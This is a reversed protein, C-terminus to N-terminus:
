DSCSTEFFFDERKSIPVNKKSSAWGTVFPGQVYCVYCEQSEGGGGTQELFLDVLPFGGVSPDICSLIRESGELRRGEICPRVRSFFYGTRQVFSHATEGPGVSALRALGAECVRVLQEDNPAHPGAALQLPVQHSFIRALPSRKPGCGVASCVPGLRRRKHIGRGNYGVLDLPVYSIDHLPLAHTPWAQTGWSLREDRISTSQRRAIIGFTASGADSQPFHLPSLVM